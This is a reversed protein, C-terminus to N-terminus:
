SQFTTTGKLEAGIQNYGGPAGDRTRRVQLVVGGTIQRIPRSHIQQSPIPQHDVQAIGRITSM